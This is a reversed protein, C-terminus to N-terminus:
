VKWGLERVLDRWLDFVGPKHIHSPNRLHGTVRGIAPFIGEAHLAYVIQRVEEYLTHFKEERKARRCALCNASIARCLEPFRRRLRSDTYGLRRAVKAMSIPPNEVLAEELGRLVTDTDLIRQRRAKNPLRTISASYRATETDLIEKRKVEDRGSRAFWASTGAISAARLDEATLLSLPSLGLQYCADLFERLPFFAEGQRWKYMTRGRIGLEHALADTDGGALQDAWVTIIEGIRERQIAPAAAVLEGMMRAVWDERTSVELLEEADVGDGIQAGLWSGCYQCYGLLPLRPLLPQSQSCRPCESHLYAHHRVCVDVVVSAWFLPDYVVFGENRWEDYCVPCWAKMSLQGEEPFAKAWSTINLYQLTNSLTLRNLADALRSARHSPGHLFSAFRASSFSPVGKQCEASLEPVLPLIEQRILVYPSVCHTRSLRVIYSSMSEVYPTGVGIPELHYLRSRPPIKPELLDWTECAIQRNEEM